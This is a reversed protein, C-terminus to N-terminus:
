LLSILLCAGVACSLARFGSSLPSTSFPLWVRIVAGRGGFGRQHMRAMPLVFQNSINACTSSVNTLDKDPVATCGQLQASPNETQAFTQELAADANGLSHPEVHSRWRFGARKICDRTGLCIAWM